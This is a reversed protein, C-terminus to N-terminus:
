RIFVGQSLVTNSLLWRWILDEGMPVFVDYLIGRKIDQEPKILVRLKNTQEDTLGSIQIIKGQIEEVDRSGIKSENLIVNEVNSITERDSIAAFVEIVVENTPILTFLVDGTNVVSDTEIALQSDVLANYPAYLVSNSIQQELSQIELTISYIDTDLQKLVQSKRQEESYLSLETELLVAKALSGNAVKPKIDSLKDEILEIGRDFLNGTEILQVRLSELRTELLRKRDIAPSHFSVLAQGSSVNNGATVYVQDVKSSAPAKVDFSKGLQISEGNLPINRELPLNLGSLCCLLFALSLWRKKRVSDSFENVASCPYSKLFSLEGMEGRQSLWRLQSLGSVVQFVSNVCRASVLSIFIMSGISITGIIVLYGGSFLLIVPTIRSMFTASEKSYLLTVILTLIGAVCLIAAVIPSIVSVVMIMILTWFLESTALYVGSKIIEFYTQGDKDMSIKESSLPKYLVHMSSRVMVNTVHNFFTFVLALFGLVLLSLVSKSPLATDFLTMTTFPILTQYFGGLFTILWLENLPKKM